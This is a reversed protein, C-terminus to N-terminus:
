IELRRRFRDSHEAYGLAAIWLVWQIRWRRVQITRDVPDRPM